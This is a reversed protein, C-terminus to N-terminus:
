AAAVGMERAAEAEGQIIEEIIALWREKWARLGFAAGAVECARRQMQLRAAPHDVLFLISQLLSGKTPWALMGNYSHIIQTITGGMNTAVVACGAAMAEAITLSTGEGCMSPVVAIDHAGHVKISDAAEYTTLSVRGDGAFRGALYERDPGAGAITITVNARQSLLEAFVDAIIRTGKEPVLRRALLLRVPESGNARTERACDWTNDAAPNPNYWIRGRNIPGRFSRYWNVFYLDVAVRNFCNEFHRLGQLQRRFRFAKEGLRTRLLKKRTLLEIAADWALGQQVAVAMPNRNPVSFIDAMFIEVARREGRRAAHRRLDAVVRETPRGPGPYASAGIVKADGFASEFDRDACQYVTVDFGADTLSPCLHAIETGVGGGGVALTKDDLFQTFFINVATPRAAPETNM